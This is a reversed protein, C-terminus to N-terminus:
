CQPCFVLSEATQADKHLSTIKMGLMNAIMEIIRQIFDAVTDPCGKEEAIQILNQTPNIGNDVCLTTLEQVVTMYRTEAESYPPKAYEVELAKKLKSVQNKLVMGESALIGKEKKLKDIEPKLEERGEERADELESGKM